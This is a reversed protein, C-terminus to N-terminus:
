YEEDYFDNISAQAVNCTNFIAETIIDTITEGAQITPLTTEVLKSVKKVESESLKIGNENAVKQIEQTTVVSM